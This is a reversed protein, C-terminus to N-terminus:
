DWVREVTEPEGYFDVMEVILGDACTMLVANYEDLPEGNVTGTAHYCGIVQDGDLGNVLTSLLEVRLTGGSAEVLQGVGRLFEDRGKFTGARSFSGPLTLVAQDSLLGQIAEVDGAAVADFFRRATEVNRVGAM